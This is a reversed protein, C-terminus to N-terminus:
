IDTENILRYHDLEKWFEETDYIVEPQSTLEKGAKKAEYCSYKKGQSLLVKGTVFKTNADIKEVCETDEKTKFL